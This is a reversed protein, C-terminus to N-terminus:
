PYIRIELPTNFLIDDSLNGTGEDGTMLEFGNPNANVVNAYKPGSKFTQSVTIVTKSDDVSSSFTASYQGASSRSWAITLGTDDNLVVETPANASNQQLMSVRTTYPLSFSYDPINLVGSNLTAAGATGNTTISDVAGGGSTQYDPINLVGGILTAAGTTGNTTLSTVMGGGGSSSITIEDLSEAITINSGAILSKFNLTEGVKDKWLGKGSGVNAALNPEGETTIEVYDDDGSLELKLNSSMSKLTRFYVKCKDDADTEQKQFVTATDGRPDVPVNEYECGSATVKFDSVKILKVSKYPIPSAVGTMEPQENWKGLVLVDNKEAEKSFKGQRILSLIDTLINM